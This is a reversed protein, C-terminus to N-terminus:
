ISRNETWDQGHDPQQVVQMQEKTLRIRTRRSAQWLAAQRDRQQRWAKADAEPISSKTGHLWDFFGLTGFNVATKPDFAREHHLDHKGPDNIWSRFGTHALVSSATAIMIWVYLTVLHTSFPPPLFIQTLLPGILAPFLNFLVQEWPSCYWAAIGLNAKTRHHLKHSRNFYRHLNRAITFPLIKYYFADTSPGHHAIWHPYFYFCDNCIYWLLFQIPPVYSRPLEVIDVTEIGAQLLLIWYLLFVMFSLLINYGVTELVKFFEKSDELATHTRKQINKKMNKRHKDEYIHFIFDLWRAPLYGGIRSSKAANLYQELLDPKWHYLEHRLSLLSVILYTSGALSNPVVWGRWLSYPDLRASGLHAVLGFRSQNLANRYHTSKTIFFEWYGLYHYNNSIILLLELAILVVIEIGLNIIFHGPARKIIFSWEKQIEDAVKENSVANKAEVDGAMIKLPHQLLNGFIFLRHTLYYPSINMIAM